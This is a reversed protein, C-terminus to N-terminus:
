SHLPSWSSIYQHEAFGNPIEVDMECLQSPENHCVVRHDTDIIGCISYYYEHLSSQGPNQIQQNYDVYRMLFQATKGHDGNATGHDGQGLWLKGM